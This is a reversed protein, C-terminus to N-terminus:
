QLEPPARFFGLEAKIGLRSLIAAPDFGIREYYARAEVMAADIGERSEWIAITAVNFATPGGAKELVIHGRFGLLTSIFRLSQHMAQLFEERTEDPVAFNDLRFQLGPTTELDITM